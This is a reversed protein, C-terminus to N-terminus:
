GIRSGGPIAQFLRGRRPPAAALGPGVVAPAARASRDELQLRHTLPSHIQCRCNEPHPTHPPLLALDAPAQYTSSYRGQSSLYSPREALQVLMALFRQVRQQQDALEAAALLVRSRRAQAPWVRPLHAWLAPSHAEPREMQPALGVQAGLIAQSLLARRRQDPALDSHAQQQDPALDPRVLKV